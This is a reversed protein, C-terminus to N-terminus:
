NQSKKNFILDPFQTKYYIQWHKNKSTYKYINKSLISLNILDKKNLFDIIYFLIDDSLKM